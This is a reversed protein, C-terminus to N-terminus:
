STPVEGPKYRMIIRGDPLDFRQIDPSTIKDQWGGRPMDTASGKPLIISKHEYLAEDWKNIEAEETLEKSANLITQQEKESLEHWEPTVTAEARKQRGSEVNGLMSSPGNPWLAQAADPM